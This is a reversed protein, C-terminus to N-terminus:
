LGTMYQNFQQTKRLSVSVEDPPRVSAGDPM